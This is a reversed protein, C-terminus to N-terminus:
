IGPQAAAVARGVTRSLPAFLVLSAGLVVAGGVALVERLGLTAALRGLLLSGLPAMGIFTVTYLSMLRGRLADPVLAQLLTNTAAMQTMMCGAAVTILACAAGFGPALAFLAVSLGFGAATAPM